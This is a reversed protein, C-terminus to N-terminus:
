RFEDDIKKFRGEEKKLAGKIFVPELYVWRRQIQNLNHLIVDLDSIKTEWQTVKEHFYKYHPSNKLSQM